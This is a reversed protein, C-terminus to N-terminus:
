FSVNKEKDCRNIRGQSDVQRVRSKAIEEQIQREIDARTSKRMNKEYRMDEIINLPPLGPVDDLDKPALLSDLMEDTIGSASILDGFAHNRGTKMYDKVHTVLLCWM